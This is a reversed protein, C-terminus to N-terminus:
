RAADLRALLARAKVCEQGLKFAADPDVQLSEESIWHLLDRLRGRAEAADERSLRPMALHEACVHGGPDHSPDVACDRECDGEACTFMCDGM